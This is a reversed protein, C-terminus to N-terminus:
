CFDGATRDFRPEVFRDAERLRDAEVDDAGLDRADRARARAAQEAAASDFGEALQDAFVVIPSTTM